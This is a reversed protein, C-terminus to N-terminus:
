IKFFRSILIRVQIAYSISLGLIGADIQGRSAIGFIAACLVLIGSISSLYVGLWRATVTMPYYTMNNRDVLRDSIDIFRVSQKYARITSTGSVTEGFHEFIPSRM